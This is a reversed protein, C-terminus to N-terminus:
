QHNLHNDEWEYMNPYALVCSHQEVKQSGAKDHQMGSVDKM